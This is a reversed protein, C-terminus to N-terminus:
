EYFDVLAASFEDLQVSLTEVNARYWETERAEPTRGWQDLFLVTERVERLACSLRRRKDFM